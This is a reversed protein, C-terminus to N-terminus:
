WRRARAAGGSQHGPVVPRTCGDASGRACSWCRARSSSACTHKQEQHAAGCCRGGRAGPAQASDQPQGHLVQWPDPACQEPVGRSHAHASTGRAHLLASQEHQSSCTAVHLACIGWGCLHTVKHTLVASESRPLALYACAKPQRQFGQAGSVQPVKHVLAAARRSAASHPVQHAGHM